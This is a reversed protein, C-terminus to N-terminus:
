PAVFNVNQPGRPASILRIESLRVQIGTLNPALSLERHTALYVLEGVQSLIRIHGCTDHSDGQKSPPRITHDRVRCRQLDEKNKEPRKEHSTCAEIGFCRGYM